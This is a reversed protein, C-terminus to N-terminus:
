IAVGERVISRHIAYPTARHEEESLFFPVIICKERLSRDSVLESTRKGETWSHVPGRLVVAVDVDSDEHAQDRGYSGFLYIGRLRDGYIKELGYRFERLLRLADERTKIM